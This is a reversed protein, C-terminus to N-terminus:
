PQADADARQDLTCLFPKMGMMRRFWVPRLPLSFDTDIAIRAANAAIRLLHVRQDGVPAASHLQHVSPQTRLRHRAVHRWQARRASGRGQVRPRRAAGRRRHGASGVHRGRCHLQGRPGSRSGSDRVDFGIGCDTGTGPPDIGGGIRQGCGADIRPAGDPPSRRISRRCRAPNRDHEGEKM